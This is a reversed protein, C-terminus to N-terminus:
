QKSDKEKKILFQAYIDVIEARTILQVSFIGSAIQSKLGLIQEFLQPFQATVQNIQQKTIHQYQGRQYVRDLHLFYKQSHSICQSVSKTAIEQQILQHNSKGYKILATEFLTHEQKTWRIRHQSTGKKIILQKQKQNSIPKQTKLYNFPFLDQQADNNSCAESYISFLPEYEQFFQNDM